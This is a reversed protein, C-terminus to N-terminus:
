GELGRNAIAEKVDKSLGFSTEFVHAGYLNRLQMEYAEHIALRQRLTVLYGLMRLNPNYKALADDIARQIYTIGQAGFDEAQVPVMVFDAALLANWSCLHLNPPCDILVVDFRGRVERLFGKLSTQLSGTETYTVATSGSGGKVHITRGAVAALDTGEKITHFPCALTGVSPMASSKDVYVDTATASLTGCVVAADAGDPLM